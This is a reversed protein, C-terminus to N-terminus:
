GTSRDAGDTRSVAPGQVSPTAAASEERLGARLARVGKAFEGMTKPLRGAGFVILVVLLVILWHSLSFTGM